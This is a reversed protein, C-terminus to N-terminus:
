SMVLDIWLSAAEIARDHTEFWYDFRHDPFVVIYAQWPHGDPAELSDPFYAVHGFIGATPDEIEFYRLKWHLNLPEPMARRAVTDDETIYTM